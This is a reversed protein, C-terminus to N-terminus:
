GGDCVWTKRVRLDSRAGHQSGLRWHNMLVHLIFELKKSFCLLEKVIQGQDM